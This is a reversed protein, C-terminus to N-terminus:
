AIVHSPRRPRLPRVLPACVASKCALVTVGVTLPTLAVASTAFLAGLRQTRRDRWLFAGLALTPGELLLSACVFFPSGWRQYLAPVVWASGVLVLFLFAQMSWSTFAADPNPEDSPENLLAAGTALGLALRREELL